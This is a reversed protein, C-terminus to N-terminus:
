LSITEPAAGLLRAFQVETTPKDPMLNVLAIRLAGPAAAGADEAAIGEERLTAAAPLGPPLQIPM